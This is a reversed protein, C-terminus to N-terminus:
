SYKGSDSREEIVDIRSSRWVCSLCSLCHYRAGRDMCTRQLSHLEVVLLVSGQTCPQRTPAAPPFESMPLLLSPSPLVQILDLSEQTQVEPPLFPVCKVELLGHYLSHTFSDAVLKAMLIGVLLPILMRVDNSVKLVLSHRLFTSLWFMAFDAIQAINCFLLLPWLLCTNNTQQNGIVQTTGQLAFALPNDQESCIRVTCIDNKLWQDPRM